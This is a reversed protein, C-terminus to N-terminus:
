ILDEYTNDIGLNNMVKKLNRLATTNDSPTCFKTYVSVTNLNPM